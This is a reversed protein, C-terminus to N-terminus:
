YLNHEFSYGGFIIYQYVGVMLDGIYTGNERTFYRVEAKSLAMPGISRM